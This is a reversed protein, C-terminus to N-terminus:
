LSLFFISVDIIWAKSLSIWCRQLTNVKVGGLHVGRVLHGRVNRLLRLRAPDGTTPVVIDSGRSHVTPAYRHIGERSSFSLFPLSPFPGRVAM